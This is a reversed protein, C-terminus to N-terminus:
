VDIILNGIYNFRVEKMPKTANANSQNLYDNGVIPPSIGTVGETNTAADNFQTMIANALGSSMQRTMPGAREFGSITMTIATVDSYQTTPPSNIIASTLSHAAFTQAASETNAIVPPATGSFMATDNATLIGMSNPPSM